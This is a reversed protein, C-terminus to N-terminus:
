VIENILLEITDFVISLWNQRESSGIGASPISTPFDADPWVELQTIGFRDGKFLLRFRALRSRRQVAVRGFSESPCRM